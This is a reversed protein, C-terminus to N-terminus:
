TASERTKLLKAAVLRAQDEPRMKPDFPGSSIEFPTGDSWDGIFDIVQSNNGDQVYRLIAQRCILRGDGAGAFADRVEAIGM